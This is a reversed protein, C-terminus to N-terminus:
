TTANQPQFLALPFQSIQNQMLLGVGRNGNYQLEVMLSGTIQRQFSFNWNWERPMHSDLSYVVPVAQGGTEQFNAQATNRSYTLVQSANAIPHSFTLTDILPVGGPYHWLEPISNSTSFGLGGGSQAYANGSTSLYMMGASGRLVTKPNLQYAAGFRPAFQLPHYGPGYRSPHEPTDAAVIAGNPLKRASAWALAWGTAIIM